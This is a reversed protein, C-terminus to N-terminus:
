GEWSLTLLAGRRRLGCAGRGGRREEEEEEESGVLTMASTM